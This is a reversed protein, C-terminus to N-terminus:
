STLKVRLKVVDFVGWLHFNRASTHMFYQQFAFINELCGFPTVNVGQKNILSEIYCNHAACIPDGDKHNWNPWKIAHLRTM